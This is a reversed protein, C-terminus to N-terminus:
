QECFHQFKSWRLITSRRASKQFGSFRSVYSLNDDIFDLFVVWMASIIMRLLTQTKQRAVPNFQYFLGDMENQM